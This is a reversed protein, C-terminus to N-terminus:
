KIKFNTSRAESKWRFKTLKEFPIQNVSIPHQWELVYIIKIIWVIEIM